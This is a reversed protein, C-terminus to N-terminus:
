FEVIFGLTPVLNGDNNELVVPIANSGDLQLPNGDTTAFGSNDETRQFTYREFGPTNSGLVNAIDLFLDLTIRNLNWKKDIRVDLQSFPQLRESNLRAYDLIGTGLSAYNRQSAELDFPTAPAGGAFRYKAGFEWNRPLKKGLLGSVLHRYDWASSVYNGDLGAFESVVYTYSLVSFVTGTM